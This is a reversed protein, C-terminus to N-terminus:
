RAGDLYAMATLAGRDTVPAPPLGAARAQMARLDWNVAGTPPQAAHAPDDAWRHQNLWTAPHPVLHRERTTLDPLQARLGAAIAEVPTHKRASRYSRLAAQKAVKRPYLEWFRDFEAAVADAEAPTAAPQDPVVVLM